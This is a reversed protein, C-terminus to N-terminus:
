KLVKQNQTTEYIMYFHLFFNLPHFGEPLKSYSKGKLEQGIVQVFYSKFLKIQIM